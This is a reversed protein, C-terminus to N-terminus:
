NNLLTLEIQATSGGATNTKVNWYNYIQFTFDPSTVNFVIPGITYGYEAWDNSTGDNNVGSPNTSKVPLGNDLIVIQSQARVIYNFGEIFVHVYLMYRGTSWIKGSARLLNTVNSLSSSSFVNTNVYVTAASPMSEYFALVEWMHDYFVPHVYVTTQETLDGFIIKDTIVEQTTIDQCIIQNSNMVPTDHVISLDYLIIGAADASGLTYTCGAGFVSLAESAHNLCIGYVTPNAEYIDSCDLSYGFDAYLIYTTDTQSAVHDFTVNLTYYYSYISYVGSPVNIQFIKTEDTNNYTPTKNETDVGNKNVTINSPQFIIGTFDRIEGYNDLSQTGSLEFGIPVSLTITKDVGDKKIVIELIKFRSHSNVKPYNIVAM